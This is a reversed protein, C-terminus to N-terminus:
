NEVTGVLCQHRCRQASRIRVRRKTIINTGDWGGHPNERDILVPVEQGSVRVIYHLGIKIESKKM